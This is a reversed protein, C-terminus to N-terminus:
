QRAGREPVAIQETERLVCMRVPYFEAIFLPARHRFVHDNSGARRTYVLWLKGGGALWHQQTNYNGLDEGDDFCLPCPPDFHLGDRSKNVYGSQNYRLALLFADGYQVISPESVGRSADVKLPEGIELLRLERGDFACRLVASSETVTSDGYFVYYVPIM